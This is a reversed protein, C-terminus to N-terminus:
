VMEGFGGCRLGTGLQRNLPLFPHYLTLLEWARMALNENIRSLMSKRGRMDIRRDLFPWRYRLHRMDLFLCFM